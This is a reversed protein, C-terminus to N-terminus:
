PRTAVYPELNGSRSSAFYITHRDPSIWPDQEDANTNREAVEVPDTWPVGPDPRTSVELWRRM